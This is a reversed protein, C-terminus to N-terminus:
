GYTKTVDEATIIIKRQEISKEKITIMGMNMVGIEHNIDCSLAVATYTGIPLPKVDETDKFTINAKSTDIGLEDLLGTVTGTLQDMVSGDIGALELIEKIQDILDLLEQLNVGNYYALPLAVKLLTDIRKPFDVNIMGVEGEIIDGDASMGVIAVIKEMGAPTTEVQVTYNEDYEFSGGIVRLAATGPTINMTGAAMGILDAERDIYTAIVKYMGVNVPRETSNYIQIGKADLGIYRVTLHEDKPLVTGDKKTVLVEMGKPQGDYQFDQEIDVKGKSDIFQVNVADEMVVYTRALPMSYYMQNEVPLFAIQEYTGTQTLEGSSVHSALDANSDAYVLDLNGEAGLKLFVHAVDDTAEQHFAEKVYADAGLDYIGDVLLNQTIIGNIEQFRFELEAKEGKPVIILYGATFATEYNSDATVAGALYIGANSPQFDDDTHITVKIEDFIGMDETVSELTNIMTEISETSIGLDELQSGYNQILTKFSSILKRVSVTSDDGLLLNLITELGQMSDPLRIAIQTAAMDEGPGATADLGIIFDITDVDKPNKELAFTYDDGYTVVQSPYNLTCPAKNVTVQFVAEAPQYDANGPFSVRVAHPSGDVDLEGDYSVTLAEPAAPEAGDAGTIRLNLAELLQAKTAGYTIVADTGEITTPIRRDALVIQQEISGGPYQQGAAWSIRVSATEGAKQPFQSYGYAPNLWAWNGTPARFDLDRWVPDAGQKESLFEIKVQDASPKAETPDVMLLQYLSTEIHRYDFEGDTNVYVELNGDADYSAAPDLGTTQEGFTVTVVVDADAVDFSGTRGRDADFGGLSTFEAGELTIDAIYGQEKPVATVTVPTGEQQQGSFDVSASGFAEGIVQLSVNHKPKAAEVYVVSVEGSQNPTFNG